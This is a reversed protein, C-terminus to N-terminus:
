LPVGCAHTPQWRFSSWCLPCNPASQPAHWLVSVQCPAVKSWEFLAKGSVPLCMWTSQTLAVGVVDVLARRLRTDAAVLTVVLVLPPEAGIATRAVLGVGPLTRGEVVRLAGEREGALVALHVATLAVGVIDVFARRPRTDAAVPTIVLVLPPEAGIATRAVLGVGPLTRGEVVRLAGEREGALVALHVAILAVGVIDVLPRRPRTDAAVPTIVLVLPPEAGIATRAVLGVGPLTRGEVVRLAGEREGALVALHVATLAVGVIDVLPRRPRTDAAVPTIVLVLPPEAGIATRAVLGVGPLTRGEVVRLAGEREGALVALHVATLAVGVIDVLPRRPRTDAAVPTIVLVLPPEAGIATRAVLGVGPLTRGEVVRLAGEREGALVALHVATLAVGVIDVLPRRGGAYTAMLIGQVVAGGKAGRAGIAVSGVGPTGRAVVPGMRERKTVAFGAATGAISTVRGLDCVIGTVATMLMCLRLDGLLVAFLSNKVEGITHLAM